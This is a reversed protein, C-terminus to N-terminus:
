APGLSSGVPRRQAGTVIARGPCCPRRTRAPGVGRARSPRNGSRGGRRNRRGLLFGVAGVLLVSAEPTPGSATSCDCGNSALPPAIGADQGAGGAAGTTPTSADAASGGTGTTEGAGGTGETV